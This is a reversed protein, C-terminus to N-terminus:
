QNCLSSSIFVRVQWHHARTMAPKTDTSPKLLLSRASEAKMSLVLPIHSSVNTDFFSFVVGKRKLNKKRNNCVDLNGIGLIHPVNPFSFNKTLHQFTKLFWSM